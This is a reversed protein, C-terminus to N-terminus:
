RTNYQDIYTYMVANFYLLYKSLSEGLDTSFWTKKKNNESFHM